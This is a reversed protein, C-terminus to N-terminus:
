ITRVGDFVELVTRLEKGQLGIKFGRRWCLSGMCFGETFVRKRLGTIIESFSLQWNTFILESSDFVRAGCIARDCISTQVRDRLSPPCRLCTKHGLDCLFKASGLLMGRVSGVRFKLISCTRDVFADLIRRASIYCAISASVRGRASNINVM